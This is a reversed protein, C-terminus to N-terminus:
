ARDRISYYILALISWGALLLGLGVCFLWTRNPVISSQAIKPQIHAALYRSQRRAEVLATEYAVRAAHFAGEAYERDVSLKEYQAVLQSYSEGDSGAAANGFKSREADILRRLADVKQKGQTVRHDTPRANETALDLAVLAEALQEQLGQLVGMQSTLDAEPDVIQSRMRFDTMAQRTTTLEARAKDLESKALKTADARAISSLDNIKDSSEQFVAAAIVQADEATFANVKLTILDSSTDYLVKVQREWYDTLDEVHGKPDFAFVFDSPWDRSFRSRLDLKADIKEVMDQSRIYEYLVDTDSAGGGGGLPSFGGFLEISPTGEEKRVSFGVTSVYQDVARTWLYWGWFAAPLVVLLLFSLLILWHRRRPRAHGAPARVTSQSPGSPRALPASNPRLSVAGGAPQAQVQTRAQPAPMPRVPIPQVQGASTPGPAVESVAQIRPASQFPRNVAGGPAAGTQTRSDAASALNGASAIQGGPDSPNNPKSM